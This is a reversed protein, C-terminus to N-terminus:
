GGKVDEVAVRWGKETLVLTGQQGRKAWGQEIAYRLGEDYDEPEWEDSSFLNKIKTEGMVRPSYKEHPSHPGALIGAGGLIHIIRKAAGETIEGV